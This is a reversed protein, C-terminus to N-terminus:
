AAASLPTKRLWDEMIRIQSEPYLSPVHGCKPVTVLEMGAGSKRRAMNAAIEETFLTSIEGRLALVPQTIQEWADWLDANGTPEKEFVQAILPDFNRTFTGDARQTLHTRVFYEWEADTMPGRSFGTGESKKFAALADAFNEYVIPIQLFTSIHDLAGQPVEPGVDSLLLRRIPTGPIASLAMGLLGGMSVGLWDCSNPAGCGVHALFATLDIAYQRYCYDDPNSLFASKGRGPMDIAHVRYGRTGLYEGVSKFDASSGTLGHVCVLPSGDEPGWSVCHIKSFGSSNLTLFSTEKM